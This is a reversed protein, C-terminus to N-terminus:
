DSIASGAHSIERPSEMALAVKRRYLMRSALQEHFGEKDLDFALETGGILHRGCYSVGLDCRFDVRRGPVVVKEYLKVDLRVDVDPMEDILLQVGNGADPVRM